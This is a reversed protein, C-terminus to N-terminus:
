QVALTFVDPEVASIPAEPEAETAVFWIVSSHADMGFKTKPKKMTELVAPNTMFGPPEEPLRHTLPETPRKTPGPLM